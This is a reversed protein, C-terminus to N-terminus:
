GKNKPPNGQEQTEPVGEGFLNTLVEIVSSRVSPSLTNLQAEIANKAIGTRATIQLLAKPPLLARGLGEVLGSAGAQFKTSTNGVLQRGAEKGLINIGLEKEIEEAGERAIDKSANFLRGVAESTKQLGIRGDVSGKTKFLAEMQEILDMKDSYKANAELIEPVQEGIWDRITRNLGSVVGDMDKAADSGSYFKSLKSALKNLGQPSNDTWKAITTKLKGIDDPKLFTSSDVEEFFDDTLKNFAKRNLPKTHNKTLEEFTQGANERIKRVGGRISAATDKLVQSSVGDAGELAARPSKLVQEIVDGGKGSVFGALSKLVNGGYKSVTNVAGPLVTEAAIGIATDKDIDGGGQVTGTVAGSTGRGLMKTLFGLGKTAKYAGASPLLTSGVESAFSSISEGRNDAKLFEDAKNRKDSGIDFISDEPLDGGGTARSVGEQITRGLTGVGLGVKGLGKAFGVAGSKLGEGMTVREKPQQTQTKPKNGSEFSKIQDVSLGKERLKMFEDRSLAM